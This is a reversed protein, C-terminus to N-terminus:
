VDELYDSHIWAKVPQWDNVVEGAKEFNWNPTVTGIKTQVSIIPLNRVNVYATTKVANSPPLIVEQPTAPEVGFLSKFSTADGNYYDLDIDNSEVGYYHGMGKTIVQKFTYTTWPLYVTNATWLPCAAAVPDTTYGWNKWYDEGTYIMIKRSSLDQFRNIFEVLGKHATAKPPVNTRCEYDVVPYLEGPDNKLMGWFFSAQDKAPQTWDLFHYGGRPMSALNANNWNLIFDRDAYCAQSTKIFAFGIGANRATVFDVHQPTSSDDQWVSIDYGLIAM